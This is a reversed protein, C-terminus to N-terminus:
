AFVCEGFKKVSSSVGDHSKLLGFRATAHKYVFSSKGFILTPKTQRDVTPSVTSCICSYIVPWSPVQQLNEQYCGDRQTTTSTLGKFGSNFGM